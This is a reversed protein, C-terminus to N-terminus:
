EFRLAEIPALRAARRAPWLGFFIGVGASFGVALLISAPAVPMTWGALSELVRSVIIGVVVGALGGSLCLVMSEILFQLLIDRRRAGLAKRLGIERTRETVSVLMINMIGIGGVLLSIAAIGALLFSFTQATEQMTSLLMAQDRVTFDSPQGPMLRHERRLITDIEAMAEPMAEDSTAQISMSRVQNSGFIRAEATGLPVYVDEDPNSFGQSGSAALVGVVDFTTGGIRISEGVIADSNAVGLTKPVEAGIVAVRRRGKEEAENFYRGASLARNNVEFFSPWVGSVSLSANVNGREVQKRGSLEPSVHLIHQGELVLVEADEVTIRAQGAVGGFFQQGPRVVLVNAGLTALRAEVSRQAGEGLAMMAIVAAIGIIVGLMTLMSRLRNALVADISVRLIEWLLM